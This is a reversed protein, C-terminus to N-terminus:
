SQLYTIFEQQAKFESAKNIEPCMPDDVAAKQLLLAIRLKMWDYFEKKEAIARKHLPRAGARVGEAVSLFMSWITGIVTRTMFNMVSAPIGTMHPDVFMKFSVLILPETYVHKSKLLLEHHRPCPRLLMTGEFDIREVNRSPPPIDGAEDRPIKSSLRIAIFGQEDIEDVAVAKIIAERQSYPWPCDCLIRLIQTGRSVQAVQESAAIGMRLPIKWSPIWTEYLSTENLVSLIPVLLSAEIPTEIRCTLRASNDKDDKDLKYYILTDRKSNHSEGQKKWGGGGGGGVGSGSGGSGAATTTTQDEILDAIADEFNDAMELIREHRATRQEAPLRRLEDAARLLREGAMHEEAAAAITMMQREQEPRQEDTDYRGDNGEQTM